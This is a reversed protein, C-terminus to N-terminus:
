TKKVFASDLYDTMRKMVSKLVTTRDFIDPVSFNFTYRTLQKANDVGDISRFIILMAGVIETTAQFEFINNSLRKILCKETKYLITDNM